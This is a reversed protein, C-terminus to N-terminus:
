ARGISLPVRHRSNALASSGAANTGIFCGTIVNSGVTTLEIGDGAGGAGFRNVALGRVTTNGASIVLGSSNSGANTGDLEIQIVANDGASLTNQSSGPQTYGDITAADTVAPLASAPSITHVGAGAISFSISDTGAHANSEMIAARLTCNGTGDNCFGDATNSDAGDGTSNVVFNSSAPPTCNNLLVAVNNTTNNAVALDPKGDGNFDSAAVSQPAAGAPLSQPAGFNGAGDGNLVSANRAFLNATVIDEKGDGNIDGVAVAVPGNETAFSAAPGFGGTGDGLLVSVNNTGRNATVIDPNGDGDFDGVAVSVPLTGVAFPPGAGFGGTGAGLLVSVNNSFNATVIDLNGDGNFDGAAVTNPSDGINFSTAAGFNGAGDGLLVSIDNTGANSTVLDLKGDGNFDAAVIGDPSTGTNFNRAAGLGGTGDGLLVSATNSNRNAVALDAHGDGNFDGVAVSLPDAGVTFSNASLFGGMGDGLLVSVSSTTQNTLALDARGDGNFDGVAVSIPTTGAAFGTAASFSEAGCATVAAANLCASFESTDGAPDTATATLQDGAATVNEFYFNFPANGSADTKVTGSGVFSAGEGNGSSDCATNSFFQLTFVTNATSNLTGAVGVNQGFLTASTLVPFNQLGNQGADGDGADNPTVGEGGLDIGLSGNDHISNVAIRDGTAGGSLNVGRGSNFAITNAYSGTAGGVTLNAGGAILGGDEGNAVADSGDTATGILNRSVVNGTGTSGVRVGDRSNGSIVNRAAATSGGVINNSATDFIQVGDNQNPLAVSGALNTGILNGRVLNDHTTHVIIVGSDLNGSILNGEGANTGGVRNTNSLGFIVVEAGNALAASGNLNTGIYNGFVDNAASTSLLLLGERDNGSLINRAAATSGGITNGNGTGGVGDNINPLAPAGAADTDVFCGAVTNGDSNLEIGTGGSTVSTMGGTGFRNVALGRVTSSGGTIVLGSATTGANTGDLEIQIVANDGGTLTNQSAGPQTYGDIIVPATIAPLASAPSITHVGAGGTNFASSDTGAFANSEMIAARLTCNSTGDNCFGDGPSNDAGDGTSNVMFITDFLASPAASARARHAPGAHSATAAPTHFLGLWLGSLSLLLLTSFYLPALRRPPIRGSM